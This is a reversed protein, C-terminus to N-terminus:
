TRPCRTQGIELALRCLKRTPMDSVRGLTSQIRDRTRAPRTHCCVTPCNRCVNKGAPRSWFAVMTPMVTFISVLFESSCFVLAEAVTRAARRAAKGQLYREIARRASARALDGLGGHQRRYRKRGSGMVIIGMEGVKLRAGRTGHIRCGRGVGCRQRRCPLRTRKSRAKCRPASHAKHMPNVSMESPGGGTAALTSETDRVPEMPKEEGAAIQPGKRPRQPAPKGTVVQDAVVAQDANVTVHKVVIQQQGRGRHQDLREVLVAVTRAAKDALALYKTRAEFFEPPQLWGRQYLALAAESATILQCILM